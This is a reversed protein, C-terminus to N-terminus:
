QQTTRLNNLLIYHTLFTTANMFIKGTTCLCKRTFISLFFCRLFMVLFFEGFTRTLLENSAGSLSTKIVQSNLPGFRVVVKWSIGSGRNGTQRLQKDHLEVSKRKLSVWVHWPYLYQVRFHRILLIPERVESQCEKPELPDVSWYFLIKAVARMYLFSSYYIFKDYKWMTRNSGFLIETQFLTVNHWSSM